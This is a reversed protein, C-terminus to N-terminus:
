GCQPAHCFRLATIIAVVLTAFSVYIAIPSALFGIAIAVLFRGSFDTLIAVTTVPDACSVSIVIAITTPIARTVAVANSASM